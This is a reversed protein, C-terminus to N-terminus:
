DLSIWMCPRLADSPSSVNDGSVHVYGYYNIGAADSTYYGPSRLWWWCNGNSEHIFAGKNVAYPTAPATREDDSEFIENAEDISLCFILDDTDNGGVAGHVLSDKNVNHTMVARAQEEETFNEKLFVEHLWNRLGCTEWTIAMNSEHYMINEIGKVTIILAKGDKVDLVRWELPEKIKGTIDSQPYEGFTIIQGKKVSDASLNSM